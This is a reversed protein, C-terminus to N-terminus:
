TLCTAYSLVDVMMQSKKFLYCIEICPGGDAIEHCVLLM